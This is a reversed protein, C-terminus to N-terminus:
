SRIFELFTQVAPSELKPQVAVMIKRELTEPLAKVAIAKPLPLTALRALISIGLGKAVMELIMGDTQVQAAEVFNQNYRMFYERLTPAGAENCLIFPQSLLDEWTATKQIPAHDTPFLAVWEDKAFFFSNLQETVPAALFGLDARAALVANEVGNAIGEGSLIEFNVKPHVAKFKRIVSPLVHVAVSRLSAIRISGTLDHRQESIEEFMAAEARLMIRAQIAIREGIPTPLAGFRGRELLRVGLNRELELIAHSVASQSMQLELAANTLNRQEVAALFVRIQALTVRANM